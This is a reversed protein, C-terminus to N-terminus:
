RTHQRCTEDGLAADRAVPVRALQLPSPVSDRCRCNLALYLCTVCTDWCDSVLGLIPCPAWSLVHSRGSNVPCNDQEIIDGPSVQM